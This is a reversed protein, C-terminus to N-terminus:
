AARAHAATAAADLAEAVASDPGPGAALATFHAYREPSPSAGALRRYLQARRGPPLSEVAAAAILPHAGSLRDGTEVVVGALVAEDVAAAPDDLQDLVALADRLGIRGAAAVM